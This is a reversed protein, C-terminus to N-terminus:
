GPLTRRAEIAEAAQRDRTSHSYTRLNTAPSNGIRQARTAEDIGAAGLWSNHTHRTDYLRLNPRIGTATRLTRWRKSAYNVTWPRSSREDNSILYPDADIGAGGKLARERQATQWERIAAVASVTLGVPRPKGGHKADVYTVVADDLDLASWRVGLVEGPRAGTDFHLTLWCRELVDATVYLAAVEDDTIVTGASVPVAPLRQGKWPNYDDVWGNLRAQRWCSMAAGHVKRVVQPGHTARLGKILQDIDNATIDAAIWKRAPAPIHALQYEYNKRTREAIPLQKLTLELLDGLTVRSLHRRQSTRAALERRAEKASTATITETRRRHKGTFPDAGESWRLRWRDPGVQEASGAGYTARKPM